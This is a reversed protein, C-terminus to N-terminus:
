YANFLFCFSNSKLLHPIYIPIPAAPPTMAAGIEIAPPAISPLADPDASQVVALNPIYTPESAIPPATEPAPVLAMELLISPLFALSPTM